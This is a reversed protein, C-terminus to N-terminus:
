GVRYSRNGSTSAPPVAPQGHNNTNGAIQALLAVIKSNAAALERRLERNEQTAPDVGGGLRVATSQFGAELGGLGPNTEFFPKTNVVATKFDATTQASLLALDAPDLSLMNANQKQYALLAQEDTKQKGLNGQLKDISIADQWDKVTRNVAATQGQDSYIAGQQAVQRLSAALKTGSETNRYLKTLAALYDDQVMKLQAPTDHMMTAADLNQQAASLALQDAPGREYRQAALDAKQIDLSKATGSLLSTPLAQVMQRYSGLASEVTTKDQGTAMALTFRNLAATLNPLTVSAGHGFVQSAQYAASNVGMGGHYGSTMSTDYARGINSLDALPPTYTPGGGGTLVPPAVMHEWKGPGSAGGGFFMGNQPAHNPTAAHATGAAGGLPNGWGPGGVTNGTIPSMSWDFFNGVSPFFGTSKASGSKTSGYNESLPSNADVFGGAAQMWGPLNKTGLVDNLAGATGQKPVLGLYRNLGDMGKTVEGLALTLTPLAATTLNDFSTALKTEADALKMGAYQQSTQYSYHVAGKSANVQATTSDLGGALAAGYGKSAAQNGFLQQLVAAQEPANLGQAQMANRILDSGGALGNKGWFSSDYQIGLASAERRQSMTTKQSSRLLSFLDQGMEGTPLGGASESALYSIVGGTGVGLQHAEVAPVAFQQAFAPMEAKGVKVGVQLQDAVRKANAVVNQNNLGYDAIASTLTDTAQSTDPANAAGSMKAAITSIQYVAKAMDPTNQGVGLSALSYEGTLLTTSNYPETGSAAQARTLGGLEAAQATTLGTEAQTAGLTRSYQASRTVSSKLGSLAMYSSGYLLGQMLYSAAGYGGGGGGGGSSESPLPATVPPRPTTVGNM